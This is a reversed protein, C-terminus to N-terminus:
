ELISSRFPGYTYLLLVLVLEMLENNLFVSLSNSQGPKTCSELAM